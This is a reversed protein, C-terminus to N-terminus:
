IKRWRSCGKHKTWIDPSDPDDGHREVLKDFDNLFNALLHHVTQFPNGGKYSYLADVYLTQNQRALELIFEHANFVPNMQSIVAPYQLKLAAFNHPMLMEM